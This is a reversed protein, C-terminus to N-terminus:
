RTVPTLSTSAYRNMIPSDQEKYDSMRSIRKTVPSEHRTQEHKRSSNESDSSDYNSNPIPHGWSFALADLFPPFRGGGSTRQHIKANWATSAVHGQLQHTNPKRNVEETYICFGARDSAFKPTKIKFGEVTMNDEEGGVQNAGEPENGEVQHEAGKLMGSGIHGARLLKDGGVQGARVLKDGGM